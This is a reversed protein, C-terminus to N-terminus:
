IQSYAQQKLLRYYKCVGFITAPLLPLLCCTCCGASISSSYFLNAALKLLLLWDGGGPQLDKVRFGQFLREMREFQSLSSSFPLLRCLVVVSSRLLLQLVHADNDLPLYYLVGPFSVSLARHSSCAQVPSRECFQTQVSLISKIELLIHLLELSEPQKMCKSENQIARFTGANRANEQFM